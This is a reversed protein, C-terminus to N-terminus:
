SLVSTASSASCAGHRPASFQRGSSAARSLASLSAPLGNPGTLIAAIARRFEQEPAAPAAPTVVTSPLPARGILADLADIVPRRWTGDFATLLTPDAQLVGLAAAASRAMAEAREANRGVWYMAEAARTPLSERLDVQPM